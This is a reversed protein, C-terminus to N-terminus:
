RPITPMESIQKSSLSDLDQGKMIHVNEEEGIIGLIRAISKATAPHDGTIMRVKIGCDKCVQIAEKM